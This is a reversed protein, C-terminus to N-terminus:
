FTAHAPPIEELRESEFGRRRAVVRYDFAVNSKGKNLERVEFGSPTKEVVYLGRCNGSPTVFVHYEMGTNVTQAFTPDLAVTAVGHELTASGFDEFWSDPSEVANLAVSRGDPLTQVAHKAGSVNLAGAVNLTGTVTVGTYFQAGSASNVTFVPTQGSSGTSTYLVYGGATNIFEGATGGPSHVEGVVGTTGGSTAFAVGNVATGKTSLAIGVVGDSKASTNTNLGVVGGVAENPASSIGVVGSAYGSTTTANGLIAAPPLSSTSNFTSVSGNQTASLIGSNMATTSGSYAGQGATVNGLTDVKFVDAPSTGSQGEILLKSATGAQPSQLLLGDGTGKQQIEVLAAPAATTGTFLTQGSSTLQPQGAPAYTAALSEVAPHESWPSRALAFASAPLGGLTDSDSAKLAYPVAVLLVRPMEASGASQTRVGLWLAKGNTFLERPVGAASSSGLLVTYHGLEDLQVQRPESWLPEGGEQSEYLSFDAIVTDPSTAGGTRNQGGPRMMTGTFTVISPVVTASAAVTDQGKLTATTMFGTALALAFGVFRSGTFSRVLIEKAASIHNEQRIRGQASM